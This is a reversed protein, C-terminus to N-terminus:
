KLGKLFSETNINSPRMAGYTHLKGEKDYILFFPISVINLAKAFYGGEDLLQIGSVKLEQMKNIWAQKDTDTSISVFVIDSGKFKEELRQLFPVENCCPGCWSAWIDIYIYKDKFESLDVSKGEATVLKIGKPIDSGKVTAIRKEYEQIYLDPLKFKKCAETIEILGCEYHDTYNHRTLFREMINNAVKMRIAGNKYHDFLHSLMNNLSTGVTVENLIFHLGPLFLATMDNDLIDHPEPFIEDLDFPIDKAKRDQARPISTYANYADTYAWTRLYQRITNPVQTESIITEASSKYNEILSRLEEDTMGQKTWLARKNNTVTTNFDSLAKNFVTSNETLANNNFEMNISISKTDISYVPATWRGNNIVMIVEYFGSDSIPAGGIYKGESLRMPTTKGEGQINLPQIYVKSLEVPKDATFSIDFRVRQANAVLTIFTISIFTIFLRKMANKYFYLCFLCKKNTDRKAFTSMKITIAIFINFFIAKPNCSFIFLQNITSFLLAHQKSFLKIFTFNLSLNIKKSHLYFYNSLKANLRLFLQYTNVIFFLNHFLNKHNNRTRSQNQCTTSISYFIVFTLPMLRFTSCFMSMTLAAIATTFLLMAVTAITGAFMIMALTTVAFTTMSMIAIM